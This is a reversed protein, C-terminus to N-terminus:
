LVFLARQCSLESFDARFDERSHGQGYASGLGFWPTFLIRHRTISMTFRHKTKQVGADLSPPSMCFSHLNLFGKGFRWPEQRHGLGDVEGVPRSTAALRIRRAGEDWLPVPVHHLIKGRALRHGSHDMGPRAQRTVGLFFNKVADHDTMQATNNEHTDAANNSARRLSKRRAVLM